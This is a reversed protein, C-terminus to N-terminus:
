GACDTPIEGFLLLERDRAELWEAELEDDRESMGEERFKERSRVTAARRRRRQRERALM